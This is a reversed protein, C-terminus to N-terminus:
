QTADIIRTKKLTAPNGQYVSYAKLPHVAISGATLVAHSAATVGPCIIARAGVWVGDELVIEKTILNFSSRKYNHNGAILMAQQSICVHKGITVREFNEICCDALWCHDGIQIKWPYKIRIGPKIRVDRGIKAGFLRLIAVLINSFPLIESRFLLLSTLYWLALKFKGAGPQYNGKDFNKKLITTNM